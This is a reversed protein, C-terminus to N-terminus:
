KFRKPVHIDRIELIPKLNSKSTVLPRNRDRLRVLIRTKTTNGKKKPLIATITGIKGSKKIQVIDGVQDAM